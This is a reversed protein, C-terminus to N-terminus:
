LREILSDVRLKGTLLDQMLGTKMTELNRLNNRENQITSYLNDWLVTIQEIEHQMPCPILISKINSQNVSPQAGILVFDWLATQFYKTTMLLYLFRNDINFNRLIVTNPNITTCGIDETILVTKGITNGTKVLVINGKKVHIEPADWYKRWKLFVPKSLDLEHKKSIHTAGLVLAGEDDLDDVTYGQWGIRGKIDCLNGLREVEWEKPIRGLVSDKFEHTEESRINGQEDIGRTLLDQMLGTKIREYKAILEETKEIAQDITTLITAITFQEQNNKPIKLRIEAVDGNSLHKVTTGTTQNQIKWLEGILFYYLLGNDLGTRAAVKCVRQNLLATQGNWRAVHFDGDMGILIDKKKVLYRSAFKGGFNIETENKKLDRIRILPIGKSKDAFYTSDFAYGPLVDASDGVVIEIWQGM